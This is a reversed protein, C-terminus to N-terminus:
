KGVWWWNENFVWGPKSVIGIQEKGMVLEQESQVLSLKLGWVERVDQLRYFWAV